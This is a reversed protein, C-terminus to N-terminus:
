VEEVRWVQYANIKTTYRKKGDKEYGEREIEGEILVEDGVRWNEVKEALKEAALGAVNVPLFVNGTRTDGKLFLNVVPSKTEDFSRFVKPEKAIEGQFRVRNERKTIETMYEEKRLICYFTVPATFPLLYCLCNFTFLSISMFFSLHFSRVGKDLPLPKSVPSSLGDRFKKGKV